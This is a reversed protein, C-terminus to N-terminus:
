KEEQEKIKNAKEIASKDIDIGLATKGERAMLIPFIGSSCGVDLISDGQVMQSMWLFRKQIKMQFEKGLEGKYGEYIKDNNLIKENM